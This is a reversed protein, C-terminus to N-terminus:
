LYFLNGFSVLRLNLLHDGLLVVIPLYGANILKLIYLKNYEICM